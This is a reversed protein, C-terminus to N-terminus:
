KGLEYRDDRSGPVRRLLAATGATSIGTTAAVKEDARRFIVVDRCSGNTVEVARGGDCEVVKFSPPIASKAHPALATLFVWKGQPSPTQWQIFGSRASAIPAPTEKRVLRNEEPALLHVELDSSRGSLHLQPAQGMFPLRSHLQWAFKKPEAGADLEDCIVVYPNPAGATPKVFMIHRLWLKPQEYAYARHAEGCVYDLVPDFSVVRLDGNKPTAADSLWQLGYQRGKMSPMSWVAYQLGGKFTLRGPRAWTANDGIGDPEPLIINQAPSATFWALLDWTIEAPQEPLRRAVPLRPLLWEGRSHMRFGNQDGMDKGIEPGCRFPLLTGDKGWGTGMKVMGSYPFYISGPPDAPPRAPVAPDLYICALVDNEVRDLGPHVVIWQAVPDQFAAALALWAAQRPAGGAYYEPQLGPLTLRQELGYLYFHAMGRFRSELAPDHFLDEGGMRKLAVVFPMPDSLSSEFHDWADIHEGNPAYGAPFLRDRHLQIEEDLWSAAEPLEYLLVLPTLAFLGHTRRRHNGGMVGRARQPDRMTLFKKADAIMPGAIRILSARVQNREPESLVEWLWDYGLAIGFAVHGADFDAEKGKAAVKQLAAFALLWRRGAEAYKREGTLQYALGLTPLVEVALYGQRAFQNQDFERLFAPNLSRDPLFQAITDNITAPPPISRGACEDAHALIRRALGHLPERRSRDRLM